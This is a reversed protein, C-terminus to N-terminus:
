KIDHRVTIPSLSLFSSAALNLLLDLYDTLIGNKKVVGTEVGPAKEREQGRSSDHAM